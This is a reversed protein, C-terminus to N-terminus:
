SIYKFERDWADILVRDGSALMMSLREMEVTNSAAVVVCSVWQPFSRSNLGAQHWPQTLPNTRV